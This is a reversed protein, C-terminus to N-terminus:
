RHLGTEVASPFESGGGQAKPAPTESILGCSKLLQAVSWKAMTAHILLGERRIDTFARRPIWISSARARRTSFIVRLAKPLAQKVQGNIVHVTMLHRSDPITFAVRLTDGREIHPM